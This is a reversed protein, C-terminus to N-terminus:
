NSLQRWQEHGLLSDLLEVDAWSMRLASMCIERLLSEFVREM